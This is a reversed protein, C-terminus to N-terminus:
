PRPVRSQLSSAHAVTMPALRRTRRPLGRLTALVFTINNEAVLQFLMGNRRKDTKARIWIALMPVHKSM